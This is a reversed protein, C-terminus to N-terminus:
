VFSFDGGGPPAMSRAAPTGSFHYSGGFVTSVDLHGDIPEYLCVDFETHVRLASYTGPALLAGWQSRDETQEIVFGPSATITDYEQLNFCLEAGYDLNQARLGFVPSM